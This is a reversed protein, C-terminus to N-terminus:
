EVRETLFLLFPFIAFKLYCVIKHFCRDIIIIMVSRQVCLLFKFKYNENKPSFDLSKFFLNTNTEPMWPRLIFSRANYELYNTVRKQKVELLRM